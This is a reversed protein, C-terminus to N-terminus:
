HDRSEAHNQMTNASARHIVASYDKEHEEKKVELLKESELSRKPQNDPQTSEDVCAAREQSRTRGRETV